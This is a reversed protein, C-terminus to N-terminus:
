GACNEVRVSPTAVPLPLRIANRCAGPLTRGSRPHIDRWQLGPPLRRDLGRLPLGKFVESWVQMAGSAGTLQASRNDDYGVWVLGLYDRDFGVFWSDREGDSTGTKVAFLPWDPHARRLGQATGRGMVEAMVMRLMFRAQSAEADREPVPARWLTEGAANAVVTVMTARVPAADSALRLYAEALQWPSHERSGLLLSPWYPSAIALGYRELTAVVRPLGLKLGLRALALNYSQALAETLTVKGHSEGDFNQPRWSPGSFSFETLPRDEIVSAPNWGKGSILASLVVFPKVLSGIPRHAHLVRQFSATTSNAGGVMARVAGSPVDLIVIATQLGQQESSNRGRAALLVDAAREARMQLWPDIGTVIRLGGRRLDEERFWQKLEPAFAAQVSPFRNGTQRVDALVGLSAARASQADANSIWALDQMAQLVADRRERAREPHRRPDYANAGKVLGALLAFEHLQLEELPRGFYFHSASAFGEVAVKGRQGLPVANLYAALITSKDYHWELMAGCVLEAAKRLVSREGQTYLRKALQQTITSGGQAIAGSKLNVWLARLIAFPDVGPHRYFNRDEIALVAAVLLPPFQSLSLPRRDVAPEAFLAAFEFPELRWWCARGDRGRVADISMTATFTLTLPLQCDGEGVPRPWLLLGDNSLRYSGVKEVTGASRYGLLDLEFVVRAAPVRAGSRLNLPTALWRGPGLENLSEFRARVWYDLAYGLLVLVLGAAFWKWYQPRSRVRRPQSQARRKSPRSRAM